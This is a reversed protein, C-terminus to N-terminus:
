AQKGKGSGRRSAASLALAAGIVLAGLVIAYPAWTLNGTFTTDTESQLIRLGGVALEVAGIGVLFAGLVGFAVYRGIGKLPDVTEQRLYAKVLDWLEAFLEPLARTEGASGTPHDPQTM